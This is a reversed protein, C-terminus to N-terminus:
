PQNYSSLNKSCRRPLFGIHQVVLVHTNPQCVNARSQQAPPKQLETPRRDVLQAISRYSQSTFPFPLSFPASVSHIHNGCLFTKPCDTAESVRQSQLIALQDEYRIFSAEGGRGVDPVRCTCEGHRYLCLYADVNACTARPFPLLLGFHNAPFCKGPPNHVVAVPSQIANAPFLM